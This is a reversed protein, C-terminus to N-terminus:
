LIEKLWATHYPPVSSFPRSVDAIVRLVEFRGGNWTIVQGARVEETGWSIVHTRASTAVTGTRQDVTADPEILCEVNTLLPTESPQGIQHSKEYTNARHIFLRRM